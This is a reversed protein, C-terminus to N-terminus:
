PDPPVLYDMARKAQTLVTRLEQAGTFVEGVRAAVLQMAGEDQLIADVRGAMIHKPLVELLKQLMGDQGRAVMDGTQAVLSELTEVRVRAIKGQIGEMAMELKAGYLAMATKEEVQATEQVQLILM